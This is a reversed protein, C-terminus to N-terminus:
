GEETTREPIAGGFSPMATEVGSQTRTVTANRKVKVKVTTGDSSSVYLTNGDLSTIEGRTTSGDGEGAGGGSPPGGMGAFPLMAAAQGSGDNQLKGGLWFAVLAILIATLALNL